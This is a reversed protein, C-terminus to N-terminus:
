QRLWISGVRDHPIAHRIRGAPPSRVVRWGSASPWVAVLDLLCPRFGVGERAGARICVLTPAGAEMARPAEGSGGCSRQVDDCLHQALWVPLNFAERSRQGTSLFTAVELNAVVAEPGPLLTRTPAAAAMGDAAFRTGPGSTKNPRRIRAWPTCNRAYDLACQTTQCQESIIM